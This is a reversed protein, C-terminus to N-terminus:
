SGSSRSRARRRPSREEALRPSPSKSISAAQPETTWEEVVRVENRALSRLKVPLTAVEESEPRRLDDAAKARRTGQSSAAQAGSRPPQPCGHPALADDDALSRARASPPFSLSIPSPAPAANTPRAAHHSSTVIGRVRSCFRGSHNEPNYSKLDVRAELYVRSPWDGRSRESHSLSCPRLCSFVRWAHLRAPSSFRSHKVHFPTLPRLVRHGM